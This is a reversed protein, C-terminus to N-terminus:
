KRLQLNLYYSWILAATGSVMPLSHLEQIMRMVIELQQTYIKDGSCIFRCKKATILLLPWLLVTPKQM